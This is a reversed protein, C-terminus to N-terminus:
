ELYSDFTLDLATYTPLVVASPVPVKRPTPHCTAIPPLIEGAIERYHLELLRQRARQREFKGSHPGDFIHRPRNVKRLIGACATPLAVTFVQEGCRPCDSECRSRVHEVVIDIGPAGTTRHLNAVLTALRKHYADVHGLQVAAIAPRPDGVCGEDLIYLPHKGAEGSM